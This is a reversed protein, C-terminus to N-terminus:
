WIVMMFDTDKIKMLQLLEKKKRNKFFFCVNTIGTILSIELNEGDKDVIEFQKGFDVFVAGSLGRSECAIFKIGLERCIENM